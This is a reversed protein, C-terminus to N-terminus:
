VPFFFSPTESETYSVCNASPLISWLIVKVCFFCHWTQCVEDLPLHHLQPPSVPTRRNSNPILEAQLMMVGLPARLRRVSSFFSPDNLLPLLSHEREFLSLFPIEELNSARRAVFQTPSFFSSEFLCFHQGLSLSRCVILLKCYTLTHCSAMSAATSVPASSLINLSLPKLPSDSIQPLWLFLPSSRRGFLV